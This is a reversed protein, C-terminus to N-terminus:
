KKGREALVREWDPPRALIGGLLSDWAEAASGKVPQPDILVIRAAGVAAERAGLSNLDLNAANFNAAMYGTASSLAKQNEPSLLWLLFDQARSASDGSGTVRGGLISVPMAYGNSLRYVLPRFDRGGPRQIGRLWEYNGYLLEVSTSRALNEVDPKLLNFSGPSFVPDKGIAAFSKFYALSEPVFREEGGLLTGTLAGAEPLRVGTFWFLSQRVGSEGGPSLFAEGAKICAARVGWEFTTRGALAAVKGPPSAVGWADWLLPVERWGTDSQAWQEVALATRFGAARVKADSLPTPRAGDKSPLFRWGISVAASRTPSLTDVVKLRLGSSRSYEAALRSLELRLPQSASEVVLDANPACSSLGAAAVLALLSPARSCLRARPPAWRKTM